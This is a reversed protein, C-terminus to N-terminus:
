QAARFSVADVLRRAIDAGNAFRQSEGGPLNSGAATAALSAGTYDRVEPAAPKKFNPGVACGAVLSLILVAPFPAMSLKFTLSMHPITARQRLETKAKVTQERATALAPNPAFAQRGAAPSQM